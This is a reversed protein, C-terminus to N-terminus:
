VKSLSHHGTLRPGGKETPSIHKISQSSASLLQRLRKGHMFILATHREGFRQCTAYRPTAILKFVEFVDSTGPGVRSVNRINRNM